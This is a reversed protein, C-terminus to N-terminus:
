EPGRSGTRSGESRRTLLQSHLSVCKSLLRICFVSSNLNFLLLFKLGHLCSCSYKLVQYLLPEIKQFLAKVISQWTQTVWSLIYKWIISQPAMACRFSIVEELSCEWVADYRDQLWMPNKIREYDNLNNVKQKLLCIQVFIPLPPIRALCPVCPFRTTLAICLGSMFFRQGNHVLCERPMCLYM